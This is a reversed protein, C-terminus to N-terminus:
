VSSLLALIEEAVGAPDVLMHLHRGDMVRTPWGRREATALEEAYTDGFGLYGVPLGDDWGSPVDVRGAFYALPLRQQEATVAQRMAQDPFLADTEPWWQTWPPLRGDDDALGCLFDLFVPPALPVSEADAGPLGADVFVVGRVDHRTCLTPVYLGANSHVVLVVADLFLPSWWHLVDEHGAPPATLPEPLGVSWDGERLVHAVPEWVAPGLLPSPLLVLSPVTV